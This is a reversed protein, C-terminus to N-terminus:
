PAGFPNNGNCVNQARGDWFNRFNFVANVASPTNRGTVKRTNIRQSTNAPDPYSFVPDPVSSGTEVSNATTSGGPPVAVSAGSGGTGSHGPGTGVNHGPIHHDPGIRGEPSRTFGEDDGSSGRQSPADGSNGINRVIAGSDVHPRVTVGGMTTAFVGQSGAVDNIDSAVNVRNDASAMKRFPFDGDHYGGFGAGSTGPNLFHNPGTTGAVQPGLEFNNDGGAQGPNLTNAPRSDAGANFHCSACAQVDDSGAQMDWFLAKGLAIAATKDALIGDMGFVPPVPVSSLPAMPRLPLIIQGRADTSQARVHGYYGVAVVIALVCVLIRFFALTGSSSKM